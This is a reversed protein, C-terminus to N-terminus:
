EFLSLQDIAVNGRGRVHFSLHCATCLPILNESRNDEPKYNSHHVTLTRMMRESKTLKSTDENPKICQMGCKCCKWGSQQKINFAIEQWNNPYRSSVM